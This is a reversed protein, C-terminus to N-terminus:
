MTVNLIFVAGFGQGFTSCESNINAALEHAGLPAGQGVVIDLPLDIKPPVIVFTPRPLSVTMGITELTVGANVANAAVTMDASVTVNSVISVNLMLQEGKTVQYTPASKSGNLLVYYAPTGYPSGTQTMRPPCTVTRTTSVTSLMNSTRTMTSQGGLLYGIGTGALLALVLVAALPKGNM